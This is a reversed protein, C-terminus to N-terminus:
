WEPRCGALPIWIYICNVDNMWKYKDVDVGIVLCWEDNVDDYWWWWIYKDYDRCMWM